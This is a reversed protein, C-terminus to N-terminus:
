THHGRFEARMLRRWARQCTIWARDVQLIAPCRRNSGHRAPEVCAVREDRPEHELAAEADRVEDSEGHRQLLEHRQQALAPQKGDRAEELAHGEPSRGAQEVEAVGIPQQLEDGRRSHRQREM